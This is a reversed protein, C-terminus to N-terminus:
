KEEWIKGHEGRNKKKNDIISSSIYELSVWGVCM